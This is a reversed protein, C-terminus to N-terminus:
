GEGGRIGEFLEASIAPNILPPADVADSGRAALIGLFGATKTGSQVIRYRARRPRDKGM